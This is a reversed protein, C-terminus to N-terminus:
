ISYEGDPASWASGKRRLRTNWSLRTLAPNSRTPSPQRVREFSVEHGEIALVYRGAEVFCPQFLANLHDSFNTIGVFRSIDLAKFQRGRM